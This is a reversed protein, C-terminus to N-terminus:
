LRNRAVFHDIIQFHDEFFQNPNGNIEGITMWCAVAADSAASVSPAVTRNIKYFFGHTVTRGRLSRSPHDFVAEDILRLEDRPFVMKTEEYLERLAGARITEEPNLFGGPLAWLDKGPNDKRLVMLVMDGIMVVNDTTVFIPPYPTDKWAKQYERVFWFEEQLKTYYNYHGGVRANESLAYVGDSFLMKWNGLFERVPLPVLHGYGKGDFYLRRVETADVLVPNTHIFHWDQFLKLYYSSADKHYGILAIKSSNTGAIQQVKTRVEVLWKSEDYFHDRVGVFVVRSLEAEDLSSKIMRVREEYTFPNKSSRAAQISGLVMILTEAEKLAQKVAYHHGNHFPQFRGIYVAHTLKRSM